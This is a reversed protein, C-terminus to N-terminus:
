MYAANVTIFLKWKIQCKNKPQNLLQTHIKYVNVVSPSHLIFRNQLCGFHFMKQKNKIYEYKESQQTM